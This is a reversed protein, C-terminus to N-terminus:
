HDTSIQLAQYLFTLIDTSEEIIKTTPKGGGHGAKSYVRLLIPNKQFENDKVAHQLAAAFKLSHLPSVRDDHDATLILTSPYQNDTSNPSHVNHVPSFKYLNDFHVKEEPNGYDSIWAHGITFQHFRLMDMVGVQAVAAGFLEPRQNICAGILLGGNSGGQIAIKKAETYKHDILYQAAAQFDDFGNQKNLLRGSDYWSSGYEGGGRINPMAFMGNFADIFYLILESFTPLLSINFGGYGHLLVAKPGKSITKKQVIFMPIKTGDRSPYFIQEVKFNNKDFGKLNMKVERFVSPEIHPKSFDYRYIVTPTLFSVLQYFIESHKKDGSIGVVEGIELPLTRILRGTELSHVQLVSKVDRFYEIVIKDGDVCYAANLVDKQHEEILTSWNEEAYNNLDITILRFNPANKNTHFVMKSGTNTVYIFDAEFKTIIPILSIKGNIPGNQELDAFFVLNDSTTITSTVILYKGCHSIEANVTWSPNEPFEVVLLDKEQPEGIRHYYLKQNQNMETESGDIKGEQNFRNYFFGKNDRTWAISPFKVQELCDKFDEGSEINRVKIKIWDSGSESVGYAFLNGDNSFDVTQLSITGDTSFTNPDLFLIPDDTLSSQRYLVDQDQLGSNQYFYYYNGHRVPATYKPYNWFNTLKKKIKPWIDNSELFLRSIENEANIFQKTEDSDPNELWRYPDLVKTGHFDDVVSEDRRAAPYTYNRFVSPVNNGSVFSKVAFVFLVIFLCRAFFTTFKM